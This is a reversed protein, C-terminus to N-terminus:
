PSNVYFYSSVCDPTQVSNFRHPERSVNPISITEGIVLDHKASLDKPETVSHLFQTTLNIIINIIVFMPRLSYSTQTGIGAGTASASESESALATGSGVTAVDSNVSGSESGSESRSRSRRGSGSGNGTRNLNQPEVRESPAPAKDVEVDVHQMMANQLTGLEKMVVQSIHFLGSRDESGLATGSEVGTGTRNLNRLEVRESPAPEARAKDVEVDVHQMMVNRLMGLEKILVQSVYSVYRATAHKEERIDTLEKLLQSIIATDPIPPTPTRTHRTHSPHPTHNQSPHPPHNQYPIQDHPHPHTNHSSSRQAHAHAPAPAHPHTGQPVRRANLHHAQEANINHHFSM